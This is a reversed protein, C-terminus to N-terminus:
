RAARDIRGADRSAVRNYIWALSWGAAAGALLGYLFGVGAGPWTVSYGPFYNSLLGLHLGVQPGNRIVLWLTAAAIGSGATLGFVIAMIGARLRATYARILRIEENAAPRGTM